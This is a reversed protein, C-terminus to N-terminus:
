PAALLVVDEAFQILELTIDDAGHGDLAEAVRSRMRAMDKARGRWARVRGGSPLCSFM